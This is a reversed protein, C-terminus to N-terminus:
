GHCPRGTRQFRECGSRDNRNETEDPVLSIYNDNYYAPLVRDGTKQRRLQVHAMLAVSKSPNHLAVTLLRKTDVDKREVRAELNVMPLQELATLDDPHEPLARWYFNSSLLKGAADHM